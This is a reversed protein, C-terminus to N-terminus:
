ATGPGTEGASRRPAGTDTEGASRLPHDPFSRANGKTVTGFPAGNQPPVPM